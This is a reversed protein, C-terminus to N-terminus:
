SHSWPWWRNDECCGTSNCLPLDAVVEAAVGGARAVAGVPAAAVTMDAAVVKARAVTGVMAVVAM